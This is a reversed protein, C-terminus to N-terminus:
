PTAFSTQGNGCIMETGQGYHASAFELLSPVDLCTANYTWGWAAAAVKGTILPDPTEVVRVRVGQGLGTCLPDDPLKAAVERLGAALTQCEASGGDAGADGGCNYLLVVAGHELDHVYFGRPVPDQFEQFAAWIPFHPGSSPPNSNWETIQTGVPVHTGVLLPPTDVVIECPGSDPSPNVHVPAPLRARDITTADTQGMGDNNSGHGCAFALLAFAGGV